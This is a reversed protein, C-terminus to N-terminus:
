RPSRPLRSNIEYVRSEYPGLRDTIRGEIAKLTRGEFLSRLIVPSEIGAFRSIEYSFDSAVADQNLVILYITSGKKWSTYLFNKTVTPKLLQSADSSLFLKEALVKSQRNIERVMEWTVASNSKTDFYGIMGGYIFNVYAMYSLEAGTPERSAIDGGFLQLWSFFPKNFMSATLAARITTETFGQLSLNPTTFPYYDIAYVDSANLTGRPQEGIATPVGDYAWNVLVLRYPDKRKISTYFDVLESDKWTRASPEDVPYWGIIQPYGKLREVLALFAAVRTELDKPKAGAAAMGVIVKLDHKAAAAVVSKLHEVDYEGNSEPYRSYFLTNIGHDKLDSLYWDPVIGPRVAIGIINFPVGNIAFFRRAYNFRVEVLNPQLKRINVESNVLPAHPGTSRIICKYVGPRLTKVPIDVYVLSRSPVTFNKRIFVKSTGSNDTCALHADIDVGFNSAVELRATDQETYYDYEMKSEFAKAPRNEHTLNRTSSKVLGSIKEAARRFETRGKSVIHSGDFPTAISGKELQPAAIFYTAKKPFYMVPQLSGAEELHRFTFTYRQWQTGVERSMEKGTAWGKTVQVSAPRDAKIYVSYTYDGSSLGGEVKKPMLITHRFDNESNVIKLVGVGEIPPSIKTDLGYQTHLGKFKLAAAHHLDWYDPLPPNTIQRFATNRLLNRGSIWPQGTSASIDFDYRSQTSVINRQWVVKQNRDQLIVRAPNIRDACCDTRNHLVLKTIEYDAGLDLEWWSNGAETHTVSGDFFNGSVKGDVAKDATATRFTTSQKAKGNESILKEGSYIQVEALSLVRQDGALEIRLYRAAISDSNANAVAACFLFFGAVCFVQFLDRLCHVIYQIHWKLFNIWEYRYSRFRFVGGVM